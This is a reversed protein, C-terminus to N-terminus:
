DRVCRISYALSHANTASHGISTGTFELFVANTGGTSTWYNGKSGVDTFGLFIFGMAPLKLGTPDHMAYSNTNGLGFAGSTVWPGSSPYGPSATLLADLDSQTPLRWPSGLYFRCPDGVGTTANDSAVSGSWGLNFTTSGTYGAPTVWASLAPTLGGSTRGTGDGSSGGSWGILSGFQFYLGGDTPAGIKAGDTGDAILNGAAWKVGGLEIYPFSSAADLAVRYHNNQLFSLGSKNVVLTYGGYFTVEITITKGTLNAPFMALSIAKTSSVTNDIVNMSLTNTLSGPSSITGDILKVTATTPFVSESCIMKAGLVKGPANTINLKVISMVQKMSCIANIDSGSSTATGAGVMFSNSIAGSVTYSQPNPLTLSTTATASNNGGTVTYGSASYPYFSYVNKTGSWGTVTGTFSASKGTSTTSLQRNENGSVGDIHASIEDGSRWSFTMTSGGDTYDARTQPVNATINMSVEGPKQTVGDMEDSNSCGSLSFLCLTVGTLFFRMKM